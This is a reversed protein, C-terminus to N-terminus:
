ANRRRRIFALGGLAATLLLGAAPVPVPAPAATDEVELVIKSITFMSQRNKGNAKITRAGFSFSDNWATADFAAGKLYSGALKRGEIVDYGYGKFSGFEVNLLSVRQGFSLTLLEDGEGGKSDIARQGKGCDFPGCNNSRLGLWSSQISADGLLRVRGDRIRYYNSSIEVGLGELAERSAKSVQGTRTFDITVTAAAVGSAALGWAIAALTAFKEIQM